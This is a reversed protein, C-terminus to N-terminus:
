KQRALFVPSLNAMKNKFRDGTKLSLRILGLLAQYARGSDISQEALRIGEEINKALGSVRLGAASNLVVMERWYGKQKGRLIALALKKNQAVSGCASPKQNLPRKRSQITLLKIGKPTVQAATNRAEISLEDWGDDGYCVLANKIKSRKLTEAFLSVYTKKSVGILQHELKLPNMLPGLLNFITGTKLRRRLLQMGAFVPHYFPAHFYGIGHRRISQIMQGRPCDLRVGLAEMLDSSGCRSSVARNGHKAVKGGAGAIVFAALTSINMANRGDGGTGCTDMLHRIGIKLPPELKRLAKVCGQLEDGTEGKGALLLLLAKAKADGLNGEFLSLFVAYADRSHLGKGSLLRVLIKEFKM